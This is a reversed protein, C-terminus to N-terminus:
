RTRSTADLVRELSDFARRAVVSAPERWLSARFTEVSWPGRFGGRRLTGVLDQLPIRGEGPLVRDGDQIARSPPADVDNLHVLSLGEVRVSRLDVGSAYVHCSDLVLGAGELGLLLARASALDNVPCDDFGLFEFGVAKGRRSAGALVLELGERMAGVTAYLARAPVVLLRASALADCLDLLEDLDRSLASRDLRGDASVGLRLGNVSLVAGGMNPLERVAAARERVNSRGQLREARAEIGDFGAGLAVRMQEPTPTTLITAGNLYRSERQDRGVDGM